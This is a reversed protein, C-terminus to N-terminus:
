AASISDEIDAIDGEEQSTIKEKMGLFFAEEFDRLDDKTLDILQTLAEWFRELCLAYYEYRTKRQKESEGAYMEEMHEINYTCLEPEIEEMLMNYLDEFTWTEETQTQKSMDLYYLLIELNKTPLFGVM